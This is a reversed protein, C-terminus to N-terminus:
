RDALVTVILLVMGFMAVVVGITRVFWRNYRFKGPLQAYLANLARSVLGSFALIVGGLVIVALGVGIGLAKPLHQIPVSTLIAM